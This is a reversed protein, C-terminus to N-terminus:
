SGVPIEMAIHAKAHLSGTGLTILEAIVRAMSVAIEFYVGSFM